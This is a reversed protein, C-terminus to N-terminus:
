VENQCKKRKFVYCLENKLSKDFDFFHLSLFMVYSFFNM